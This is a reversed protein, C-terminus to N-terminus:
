ALLYEQRVCCQEANGYWVRVAEEREGKVLHDFLWAPGVLPRGRRDQGPVQSDSGVLWVLVWGISCFSIPFLFVFHVSCSLVM